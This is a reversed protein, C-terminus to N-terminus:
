GSGQLASALESASWGVIRGDLGSSTFEAPTAGVTSNFHQLGCVPFQHVTDLAALSSASESRGTTVQAQFMRRPASILSEEKQLGKCARLKCPPAWVDGVRKFVLPSFCHGAGVLTGDALFLLKTLPLESLRLTQAADAAGAAAAAVDVLTVSSNQASLALTDGAASFAVDLVWGHAEFTYLLTGFRAPSGWPTAADKADLNKLFASFIRCRYDTSATAVVPASPHWTVATVTSGHQTSTSTPEKSGPEKDIMKSVWFNNTEEFYCIPVV